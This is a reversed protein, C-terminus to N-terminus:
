NNLQTAYCIILAITLGSVVWGALDGKKKRKAKEEDSMDSTKLNKLIALFIWGALGPTLFFAVPSYGKSSAWVAQAVCLIIIV